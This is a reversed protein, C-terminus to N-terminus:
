VSLVPLIMVSLQANSSHFDYVGAMGQNVLNVYLKGANGTHNANVLGLANTPTIAASPNNADSAHPILTVYGLSNGFGRAVIPGTNPDGLRVEAGVLLPTASINAGFIQMQGMVWPKWKFDQAPVDFTCVTVTSSAVGSQSTFASEPVTYPQPIIGGPSEPAWIKNGGTTTRATCALIDGPAPTKTTFDVDPCTSLLASPGPVGAPAAIHFTFSPSGATGTVAIWSDAGGPGLGTGPTELVINPTIVPYPGPPGPAGVPLQRFGIATGWWVYMTTAITNGNSDEVGFIWFKGLDGPLDTLDTPLQTPDTKNDNQWRLTFSPNGPDGKPGQLVPVTLVAQDHFAELTAAFMNPNNIDTVLGMLVLNALVTGLPVSDGIGLQVIEPPDSTTM